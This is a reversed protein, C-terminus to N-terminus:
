KRCCYIMMEKRMESKEQQIYGKKLETCSFDTIHKM